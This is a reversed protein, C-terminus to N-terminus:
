ITDSQLLSYGANAISTDNLWHFLRTGNSWYFFALLYTMLLSFLARVMKLPLIIIWCIWQEVAGVTTM